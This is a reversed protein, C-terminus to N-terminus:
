VPVMASEGSEEQAVVEMEGKAERVVVQAVMVVGKGALVALEEPVALSVAQM